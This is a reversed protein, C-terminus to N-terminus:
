QWWWKKQQFGEVRAVQVSLDSIQKQVSYTGYIITGMLSIFKKMDITTTINTNLGIHNVQQGTTSEVSALYKRAINQLTLGVFLKQKNLYSRLM